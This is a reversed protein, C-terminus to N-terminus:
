HNNTRQPRFFFDIKPVIQLASQRELYLWYLPDKQSAFRWQNALGFCGYVTYMPIIDSELCVGAERFVLQTTLPLGSLERLGIDVIALEERGDLIAAEGGQVLERRTLILGLGERQSVSGYNALMMYAEGLDGIQKTQSLFGNLGWDKQITQINEGPLFFRVGRDSEVTTIISM